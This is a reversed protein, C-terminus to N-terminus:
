REAEARQRYVPGRPTEVITLRPHHSFARRSTFADRLWSALRRLATM